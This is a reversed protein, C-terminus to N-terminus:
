VAQAAGTAGKVVLHSGASDTVVSATLGQGSGTIATALQALTTVGSSGGVAVNVSSTGVTIALTGSGVNTPDAVAQSEITQAKAIATVEVQASLGGLRSGANATVTVTSTDSSSPQTFLTGGSILTNLSTSFTSIDSSISGLSSIQAANATQKATIGGELSTKEAATLGTIITDTDLGSGANLSTLIQQGTSASTTAATTSSTASTTTTM